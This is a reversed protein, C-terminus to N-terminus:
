YIANGEITDGKLIVFFVVEYFPMEGFSGPENRNKSYIQHGLKRSNPYDFIVNQDFLSKGFVSQLFSTATKKAMRFNPDYQDIQAQSSVAFLLFVIIKTLKM